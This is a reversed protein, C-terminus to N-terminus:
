RLLGEIFKQVFPYVVQTPVGFTHLMLVLVLALVIKLNKAMKDVREILGPTRTQEKANWVGFVADDLENVNERLDWPRTRSNVSM